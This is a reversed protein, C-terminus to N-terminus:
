SESPVALAASGLDVSMFATDMTTGYHKGSGLLTGDAQLAFMLDVVKKGYNGDGVTVGKLTLTAGDFTYEVCGGFVQTGMAIVKLTSFGPKDAGAADKDISLTATAEGSMGYYDFTLTGSYEPQLAVQPALDDCALANQVDVVVYSKSNSPSYIRVSEGEGELYISKLDDAVKFVLNKRQRNGDASGIYVNTITVTKNAADYLYSQVDAIEQKYSFFADDFWEVSIAVKGPADNGMLDKNFTVSMRNKAGANGNFFGNVTENKYVTGGNWDDSVAEKYTKGVLDINYLHVEGAIVITVVTGEVTYPYTEAGLKASGFGDLVLVEGAGVPNYIGAESSKAIFQPEGGEKFIYKMQVEGDYSVLAECTQMISSGSVFNMEADKISYGYNDLFFWRNTGDSNTVELMYQSGYSDRVAYSLKFDGKATCYLRSNEPKNEKKDIVTVFAFDGNCFKGNAGNWPGEIYQLDDGESQQYEFSGLSKNYVFLDEFNYNMEDTSVVKYSENYNLNITMEPSECVRTRKNANLQYGKYEGVFAEGLYTTREKAKTEITIPENPMFLTWCGRGLLNDEPNSWFVQKTYDNGTYNGKITYTADYGLDANYLFHPTGGAREATWDLPKDPSMIHDNNICDLMVVRSHDDNARVIELWDNTIAAYKWVTYEDMKCDVQTGDFFRVRMIDFTEDTASKLYTINDIDGLMFSTFTGNARYGDMRDSLAYVSTASVLAGGLLATIILSKKM